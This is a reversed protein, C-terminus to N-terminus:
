VDVVKGRNLINKPDLARKLVRMLEIEYESRTVSMWPKKELGVGHEASVAGGVKGLPPYVCENSRALADDASLSAADAGPLVILHLNGDGLHGIVLLRSTSWTRTLAARVEEVYDFADRIPLGVDYVFKPRFKRGAEFSERIAWIHAREAGSKPIVADVILGGELAEAVVSTFRASDAEPDPGQAEAIVYFPWDRSLPAAHFGPATATHFYEGWMAEFCSLTGGLRQDMHKLFALMAAGNACAVLATDVSRPQEKLALVVRTVVGLTGETGIFLQKVDYGTNNKLLRNMASVVTGDPLVAELGLVHARAMGYRIVNSGGANTSVNGGISCSGRGGLDLPLFLGRAAVAEQLRQLTCGAQVTVTRGIQDIEEITSMRELSLILDRATTLDGDSHGTLGGHAVM